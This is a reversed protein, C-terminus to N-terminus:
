SSVTNKIHMIVKHLTNYVHLCTHNHSAVGNVYTCMRLKNTVIIIYVKSILSNIMLITAINIDHYYPKVLDKMNCNDIAM